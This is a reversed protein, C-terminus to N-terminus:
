WNKPGVGRYIHVLDYRTNTLKMTISVCLKGRHYEDRVVAQSEQKGLTLCKIMRKSKPQDFVFLRLMAMKINKSFIPNKTHTAKTSRSDIPPEIVVRLILCTRGIPCLRIERTWSQPSPHFKYQEHGYLLPRARYINDNSECYQNRSKRWMHITHNKNVTM